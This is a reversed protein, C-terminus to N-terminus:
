DQLQFYEDRGVPVKNIWDWAAKETRFMCETDYLGGYFGSGKRYYAATAKTGPLRRLLDSDLERVEWKTTYVPKYIKM